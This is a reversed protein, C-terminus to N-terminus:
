WIASSPKVNLPNYRFRKHAIPGAIYTSPICLYVFPMNQSDGHMDLAHRLITTVDGWAIGSYQSSHHRFRPCLTSSYSTTSHQSVTTVTTDCARFNKVLENQIGCIGLVYQIYAGQNAKTSCFNRGSSSHSKRRTKRSYGKSLLATQMTPYFIMTVTALDRRGSSPKVRKPHKSSALLSHRQPNFINCLDLRFSLDTVM